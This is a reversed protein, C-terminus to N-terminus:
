GPPGAFAYVQAPRRATVRHGAVEVIV